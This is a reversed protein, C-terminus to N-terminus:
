AAKEGSQRESAPARSATQVCILDDTRLLLLGNQAVDVMLTGRQARLCEYLQGCHYWYEGAPTGMLPIVELSTSARTYKDACQLTLRSGGFRLMIRQEEGDLPAIVNVARRLAEADTLVTFAPKASSFIQDVNMYTGDMLRASFIINNKSFVIAKGTTGVALSDQNEVLAALKELSRAPLLMNIEGTSKRDGKADAIRFGDSGIARLGDKGFILDICKMIPKSADERVAFATRCTLAPIGTVPVTDEPFPLELKPYRKADLATVAYVTEGSELTLRNNEDLTVCVMEGGLLRFMAALLKASFVFRGEEQIQAPLTQKLTVELNTATVALSGEVTEVLVGRLADLPSVIPAIREAASLIAAMGARNIIVKM